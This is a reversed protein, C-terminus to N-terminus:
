WVQRSRDVRRQSAPTPTIDCFVLSLGSCHDDESTFQLVGLVGAISAGAAGLSTALGSVRSGNRM